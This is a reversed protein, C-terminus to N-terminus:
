GRKTIAFDDDFNKLHEHFDPDNVARQHLDPDFGIGKSRAPTLPWPLNERYYNWLTKDERWRKMWHSGFSVHSIEDDLVIKLIDATKHDDLEQFIRSYHQAFDLNAAEFTLAM